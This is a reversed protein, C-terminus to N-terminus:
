HNNENIDGTKTELKLKKADKAETIKAIYFDGHGVMAKYASKFIDQLQAMSQAKEIDALYTKLTDEVSTGDNLWVLIKKGTESTVPEPNTNTFLGTRDKIANAFHGDHVLDLALTFEYEFNDRQVLKTGLRLIKKDVQATETKSRATCIIHKSSQVMANVFRNHEKDTDGWASWTNGKFKARATMENMELCGGAGAWEHTASDIVIVSYNAAEANKIAEVFSAPTFPPQLNLVDFDFRNAYLSASGNETDIVAVRGDGKISDALTLAAMTKGSGSAGSICLRLKSKQKTAKTFM